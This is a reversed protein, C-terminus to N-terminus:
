HAKIRRNRRPRDLTLAIGCKGPTCRRGRSADALYGALGGGSSVGLVARNRAPYGQDLLWRYAEASDEIAAPFPHEPAHEEALGSTKKFLRSTLGGLVAMYVLFTWMNWWAATGAVAFLAAVAATAGFLMGFVRKM